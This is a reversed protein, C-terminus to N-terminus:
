IAIWNAGNWFVPTKVAGGGAIVSHWTPGNADTVYCMFGENPLAPLTAVTFGPLYIATQSEIYGEAIINFDKDLSARVNNSSDSWDQLDGVQAAAGKITVPVDFQTTPTITNVGQLAVFRADAQAATYYTPLPAPVMAGTDFLNKYITITTPGFVTKIEGLATTIRVSILLDFTEGTQTLSYEYLAITNLTITGSVGRPAVLDINTLTLAPATDDGLTTTFEVFYDQGNQTVVINNPEGNPDNYFIQPHGALILALENASLRQATAPSQVPAVGCTTDQTYQATGQTGAGTVNFAVTFTDADLVTITSTGDISPTSNSGAIVISASNPFGHNPVTVHTPNAISIGTIAQKAGCSATIKYTGSYTDPADFSIKQIKNSTSSGSATTTLTVGAAPLATAPEAYCFPSARVILLLKYVTSVSGLDDEVVIATGDPLLLDGDGVLFGTAIAGNTNGTISYVGTAVLAVTCAPKGAAVFAASLPTQLTAAAINYALTTLGTTSGGATLKFTGGTPNQDAIGIAVQVTNTDIWDPLWLSGAGTNAKIPQVSLNLNVDARVESSVQSTNTGFYSDTIQDRAPTDTRFRLTLDSM